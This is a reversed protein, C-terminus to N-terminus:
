GPAPRRAIGPRYASPPVGFWRKFSQSFSSLDSFGLREAIQTLSLGSNGLLELARASRQRALLQRYSTGEEQLRRKLTRVSTRLLRAMGPLDPMPGAPLADLYQRVQEAARPHAQRRELLQACMQECMSVTLPNAQPLPRNLFRRDFALSHCTARYEPRVGLICPAPVDGPVGPAAGCRTVRLLQFDQGVIEQMLVAAAAMDRALLFERLAPDAVQPEDFVLRGVGPELRYGISAFAYTLPLFRLALNLADAPTASSILGYGFLGYTSFHYRAGVEYGLGPPQGLLALLNSVLRLEQTASLLSNPDQLQELTLGAGALLPVVALGKERGFNVLLLASSPGRTFSQFSM